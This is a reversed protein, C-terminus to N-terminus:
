WGRKLRASPFTGSLMHNDGILRHKSVSCRMRQVSDRLQQSLKTGLANFREPRNLTIYAIHDKKEYIVYPM